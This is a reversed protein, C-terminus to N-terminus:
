SGTAGDALKRRAVARQEDTPAPPRGFCAGESRASFSRPRTCPTSPCLADVARRPRAATRIQFHEKEPCGGKAGNVEALRDRARDAGREARNGQTRRDRCRADQKCGARAAETLRTAWRTTCSLLTRVAAADTPDLLGNDCASECAPSYDGAERRKGHIANSGLSFGACWAARGRCSPRAFGPCQGPHM